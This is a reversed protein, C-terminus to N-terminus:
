SDDGETRDDHTQLADKIHKLISNSDAESFKQNKSNKPNKSNQHTFPQQGLNRHKRPMTGLEAEIRNWDRNGVV